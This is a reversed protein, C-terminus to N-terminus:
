RGVPWRKACAPRACRMHLPVETADALTGLIIRRNGHLGRAPSCAAVPDGDLAVHYRAARGHSATWVERHGALVPVNRSAANKTVIRLRRRLVVHVVGSAFRVLMKSGGVTCKGDSRRVPDCAAGVLDPATMADGLYVYRSM